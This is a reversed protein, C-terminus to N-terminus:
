EDNEKKHTTTRIKYGIKKIKRIDRRSFYCTFVNDGYCFFLKSVEFYDFSVYGRLYQLTLQERHIIENKYEVKEKDIIVRNTAYHNILPLIMFNLFMWASITVVFYYIMGYNIRGCTNYHGILLPILIIYPPFVIWGVVLRILRSYPYRSM